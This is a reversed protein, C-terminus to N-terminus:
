IFEEGGSGRMYEFTEVSSTDLESETCCGGKADLKSESNGEILSRSASDLETETFEGGM